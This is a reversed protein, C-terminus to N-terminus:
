EAGNGGGRIHSLEAWPDDSERWGNGEVTRLDKVIEGLPRNDLTEFSTITFDRRQWVGEDNRYWRGMGICRLEEGFIHRALDRAIERSTHGIIEDGQRDLLHVPVSKTTGGIRVVQGDVAGPQNFPGFVQEAIRRNGPFPIIEAGDEDELAGSANDKRLMLDIERAAHRAESPGEGSRVRALREDVKPVAERQVRCIAKTSGKAVRVFHVSPEEGLLKALYGLYEALREMPITDPTYADLRFVLKKAKAM